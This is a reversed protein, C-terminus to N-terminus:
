MSKNLLRLIVSSRNLKRKRRHSATYDSLIEAVNRVFTGWRWPRLTLWAVLCEYIRFPESSPTYRVSNSPKQVKEMTRYELSCSTESVPDTDTRLHLHPLLCRSMQARLWWHNLNARELPGLQTPTKQGVKVQPRFCIGNGFRRTRYFVLRHFSVLDWYNQSGLVWENLNGEWAVRGDQLPLLTDVECDGDHSM